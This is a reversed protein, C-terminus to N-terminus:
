ISISSTQLGVFQLLLCFTELRYLPARCLSITCISSLTYFYQLYAVVAPLDATLSQFKQIVKPLHFHTRTFYDITTCVLSQVISQRLNHHRHYKPM